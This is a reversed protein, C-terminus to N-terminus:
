DQSNGVDILVPMSEKNFRYLGWNAQNGACNPPKFSINGAIGSYSLTAMIKEPEAKNKEISKIISRLAEYGAYAELIPELGFRQKFRKRFDRDVIPDVVYAGELEERQRRDALMEFVHNALIVKGQYRLQRLAKFFSEPEHAQMIADPKKSIIKALIAKYDPYYDDSTYEEIVEVEREAAVQKWLARYASGWEPDDFTVLAVKKIATSTDFFSRYAHVSDKIQSSMSFFYGPAQDCYSQQSLSIAVTLKKKRKAIPIVPAAVFGFDDIIVADVHQYDILKHYASILKQANTASDEPLVQIKWGQYNYEEQALTIGKNQFSAWKAGIGSLGSILGIRAQKGQLQNDQQAYGKEQVILIFILAFFMQVMKM